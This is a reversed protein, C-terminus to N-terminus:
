ASERSSLLARVLRPGLCEPTYQERITTLANTALRTRQAPHEALYLIAEAMAEPDNTPVLLGNEGHTIVSEPGGCRTSIVPVGCAMAELVVIGLGEQASPLVFMEAEQYLPALTERPRMGIFHVVESIGLKRALRFLWGCRSIDGAVVLQLEPSWERVRAFAHLLVDIRKRRDSPRTACFIYRGYCTTAKLEGPRFTMTDIPFPFVEIREGPVGFQTQISRATYSSLALIRSARHYVRGELALNVPRLVLIDFLQRLNSASFERLNVRSSWEDCLTSASWVVFPKGLLVLPTAAQNSGSIALFYDFQDLANRLWVTPLLYDFYVGSPIYGWGLSRIGNRNVEQLGLRFKRAHALYVVSPEFGQGTLYQYAFRVMTQLGGFYNPDHSLICVKPQLHKTVTM